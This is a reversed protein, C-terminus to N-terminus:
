IVTLLHMSIVALLCMFYDWIKRSSCLYACTGILWDTRYMTILVEPVVESRTFEEIM